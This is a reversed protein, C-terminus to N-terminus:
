VDTREERNGDSGAACAGDSGAGSEIHQVLPPRLRDTPFLGRNEFLNVQFDGGGRELFRFSSDKRDQMKTEIVREGVVTRSRQRAVGLDLLFAQKRRRSCANSSRTAGGGSRRVSLVEIVVPQEVVPTHVRRNVDVDKQLGHVELGPGPPEHRRQRVRNLLRQADLADRLSSFNREVLM